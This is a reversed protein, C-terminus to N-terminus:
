SQNKLRIRAAPCQCKSHRRIPLIIACVLWRQIARMAAASVTYAPELRRVICVPAVSTVVASSRRPFREMTSPDLSSCQCSPRVAHSIASSGILQCATDCGRGSTSHPVEPSTRLLIADLDALLDFAAHRHLSKLRDFRRQTHRIRDRDGTDSLWRVNWTLWPTSIAAATAHPAAEGSFVPFGCVQSFWEFLRCSLWRWYRPSRGVRRYVKSRGLWRSFMWNTRTILTYGGLISLLKSTM